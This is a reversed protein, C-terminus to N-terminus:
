APCLKCRTWLIHPRLTLRELELEFAEIVEQMKGVASKIKKVESTDGLEDVIGRCYDAVSPDAKVNAVQHLTRMGITIHLVGTGDVEDEEAQILGATAEEGAVAGRWLVHRIGEELIPMVPNGKRGSVFWDDLDPFQSFAKRVSDEALVRLDPFTRHCTDWGEMWDDLSKWQIEDATHAKLSEFLLKNRRIIRARERDGITKIIGEETGEETPRVINKEMLSYFYTEAGTPFSPYQPLQLHNVLAEAWKTLFDLHKEFEQQGVMVRVNQLERISRAKEWQEYSRQAVRSSIGTEEKIAHWSLGGQRHRIVEDLQVQTLDVRRM